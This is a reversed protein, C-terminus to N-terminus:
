GVLWRATLQGLLCAGLCGLVTVVLYGFGLGLAGDRLYTFTEHSFTSYTTFGGLFGTGLAIRVLPSVRDTSVALEVLAALLFSGLTNVALTGVPLIPGFAALCALSVLYRSISGVGGAVFVWLVQM